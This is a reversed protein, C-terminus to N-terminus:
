PIRFSVWTMAIGSEYWGSNEGSTRETVAAEAASITESMGKLPGM